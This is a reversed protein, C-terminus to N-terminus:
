YIINNKKEIMFSITLYCVSQGDQNKRHAHKIKNLHSKMVTDPAVVGPSYVQRGAEQFIGM